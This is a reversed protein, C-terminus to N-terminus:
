SLNKKLENVKERWDNDDDDNDDSICIIFLYCYEDGHIMIKMMIIILVM